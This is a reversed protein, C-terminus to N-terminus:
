KTTTITTTTEDNQRVNSLLVTPIAAEAEQRHRHIYFQTRRNAGAPHKRQQGHGIERRFFHSCGVNFRPRRQNPNSENKKNKENRQAIFNQKQNRGIEISNTRGTEIM